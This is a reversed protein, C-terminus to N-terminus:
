KWNHKEEGTDESGSDDPSSDDPGNDEFTGSQFEISPEACRTCSAASDSPQAGLGVSSAILGLGIAGAAALKRIFTVTMTHDGRDLAFASRLRWPRLHTAFKSNLLVFRSRKGQTLYQVSQRIIM